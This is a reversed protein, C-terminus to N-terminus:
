PMCPTAKSPELPVDQRKSAGSKRQSGGAEGPIRLDLTWHEDQRERARARERGAVVAGLSHTGKPSRDMSEIMKEVEQLDRSADSLLTHLMILSAHGQMNGLEVLAGLCALSRSALASRAPGPHSRKM